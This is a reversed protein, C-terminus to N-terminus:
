HIQLGVVLPLYNIARGPTYVRNYTSEVFLETNGFGLSAGAGANWGFRTINDSEGNSANILGAEGTPAVLGRGYFNNTLFLSSNYDRFHNVSGGAIAYVGSTAGKFTGIPVRFKGNLSANIARADVGAGGFDNIVDMRGLGRRITPGPMRGNFENYGVALRLGVPSHKHDWGIYGNAGWGESYAKYLDGVPLTSAASLGLYMGNGFLKPGRPRILPIVEGGSAQTTAGCNCQVVVTDRVRGMEGSVSSTMPPTETPTTPTPTAAPTPTPAPTTATDKQQEKRVRNREDRRERATSQATASAASVLSLAVAIGIARTITFRLTM